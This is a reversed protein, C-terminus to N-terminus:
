DFDSFIINKISVYIVYHNKRANLSLVNPKKFKERILYVM